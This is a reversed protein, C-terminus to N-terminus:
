TAVIVILRGSASFLKVRVIIVSNVVTQRIMASSSATCATTSRAAGPRAKEVPTSTFSAPVGPPSTMCSLTQVASSGPLASLGM